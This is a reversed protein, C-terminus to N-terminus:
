YYHAIDSSFLISIDLLQRVVHLNILTFDALGLSLALVQIYCYRIVVLRCDVFFCDNQLTGVPNLFSLNGTIKRDEKLYKGRYQTCFNCTSRVTHEVQM